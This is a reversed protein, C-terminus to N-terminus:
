EMEGFATVKRATQCPSMPGAPGLPGDPIGPGMTHYEIMGCGAAWATELNYDLM